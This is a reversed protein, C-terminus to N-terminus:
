VHSSPVGPDPYGGPATQPPLWMNFMTGNARNGWSYHDMPTMIELVPHAVPWQAPDDIYDDYTKNWCNSVAPVGTVVNNYCLNRGGRFTFMEFSRQANTFKNEYIESVITSYLLGPQNGHADFAQITNFNNFANHRLVYRGGHGAECWHNGEFTCDELFFNDGHGYPSAPDVHHDDWSEGNNGIARLFIMCDRIGASPDTYEFHCQYGVGYINGVVSIGEVTHYFNIHDVIFNHMISSSHHEIYVPNTPGHYNGNITFGSVRVKEDSAVTPADPLFQFVYTGTATINTLGIGAGIISLAKTTSIHNAGWDASGAPVIVTDGAKARSVASSVDVFSPSAARIVEAKGIAIGM